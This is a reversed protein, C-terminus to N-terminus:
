ENLECIKGSWRDRLNIWVKDEEAIEMGVEDLGM